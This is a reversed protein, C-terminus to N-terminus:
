RAFGRVRFFLVGAVIIPRVLIDITLRLVRM